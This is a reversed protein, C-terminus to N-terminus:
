KKFPAYCIKAKKKKKKLSAIKILLVLGKIDASGLIFSLHM